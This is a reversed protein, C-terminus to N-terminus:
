ITGAPEAQASSCGEAREDNDDEEGKGRPVQVGSQVNSAGDMHGRLHHLGLPDTRQFMKSRIWSRDGTTKAKARVAWRWVQVDVRDRIGARRRVAVNVFVAMTMATPLCVMM